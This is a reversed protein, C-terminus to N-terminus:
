RYTKAQARDTKAQTAVAMSEGCREEPQLSRASDRGGSLTRGLRMAARKAVQLATDLSEAM